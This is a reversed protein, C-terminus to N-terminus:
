PRIGQAWGPGSAIGIGGVPAAIDDREGVGTRPVDGDQVVTRGGHLVFQEEAQGVGLAAFEDTEQGADEVRM